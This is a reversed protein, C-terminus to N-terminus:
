SAIDTFLLDYFEERAYRELWPTHGCRNLLVFRFDSIATALPRSVGGAPSPDYDGHIALVPCRVQTIRELLEGSERMRAAESWVKNYIGADLRLEGRAASEDPAFTDAKGALEGLRELKGSNGAALAVVVDDFEAREDPTLRSLRTHHMLSSDNPTIVGSSVLILKRVMEPYRAATLLALWAGWSYGILVAPLTAHAKLARHLEEIQAEVSRGSQFPELVGFRQALRIAVPEM